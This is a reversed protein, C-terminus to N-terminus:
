FHLSHSKTVSRLFLMTQTSFVYESCHEGELSILSLFICLIVYRDPLDWEVHYIPFDLLSLSMPQRKERLQYLNKLDKWIRM